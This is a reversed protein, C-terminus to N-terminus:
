KSLRTSAIHPYAFDLHHNLENDEKIQEEIFATKHISKWM